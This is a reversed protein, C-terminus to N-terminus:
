SKSPGRCSWDQCIRGARVQGSRSFEVHSTCNTEDHRWGKCKSFWLKTPAIVSAELHRSLWPLSVLRVSITFSCIDMCILHKILLVDSTCCILQTGPSCWSVDGAPWLKQGLRPALRPWAPGQRLTCFAVGRSKRTMHRSFITSSQISCWNPSFNCRFGILILDNFSWM